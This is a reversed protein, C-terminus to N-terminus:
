QHMSRTGKSTAPLTKDFRVRHYTRNNCARIALHKALTPVLMKSTSMSLNMRQRNCTLCGPIARQIYREFRTTM